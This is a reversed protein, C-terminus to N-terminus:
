LEYKSKNPFRHEIWNKLATSLGADNYYMYTAHEALSNVIEEEAHWELIGVRDGYGYRVDQKDIGVYNFYATEYCIADCMHVSNEWAPRYREMMELFKDRNFIKPTHSECNWGYGGTAKVWDFTKWLMKIWNNGDGNGRYIKNMDELVLPKIDQQEVEKIFLFDDCMYVFDESLEGNKVAYVLKKILLENEKSPDYEPFIWEIHNVMSPDIYRPLHGCIVVKDTGSLNECVSRLSYKLEQNWDSKRVVYLVDM